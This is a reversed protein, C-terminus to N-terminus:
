FTLNWYFNNDRACGALRVPAVSTVCQSHVTFGFDNTPGTILNGVHLEWRQQQSGTCSAVRLPEGFAIKAVTVCLDRIRLEGNPYLAFM